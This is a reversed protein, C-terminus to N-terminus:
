LYDKKTTSYENYSIPLHGISLIFTALLLWESNLVVSAFIIYLIPFVAMPIPIIWLPKFLLSYNRKFIFFRMWCGYYILLSLGMIFLSLKNIFNNVSIEYFIPLIIIAAQGAREFITLIKKMSIDEKEVPVNTPKLIFFLINPILLALPIIISLFHIM